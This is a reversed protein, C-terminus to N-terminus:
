SGEEGSAVGSVSPARDWAADRQLVALEAVPHDLRPMSNLLGITYPHTAEHLRDARCTEVIRGADRILVRDRVAAVKRVPEVSGGPVRRLPEPYFEKVRVTMGGQDPGLHDGHPTNLLPRIHQAIANM